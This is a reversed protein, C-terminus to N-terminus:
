REGEREGKSERVKTRTHLLGSPPHLPFSSLFLSLGLRWHPDKPCPANNQSEQTSIRPAWETERPGGCVPRVRGEVGWPKALKFRLAPPTWGGRNANECFFVRQINKLRSFQFAPTRRYGMCKGAAGGRQQTGERECRREPTHQTHTPPKHAHKGTQALSSHYCFRELEGM